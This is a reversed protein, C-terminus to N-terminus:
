LLGTLGTATTGSAQVRRVRLPYIVGPQLAPLVGDSGDQMIVAVDGATAVMLARTLSALDAGDDPTIQLMGTAPAELGAAHGSFKDEIPM